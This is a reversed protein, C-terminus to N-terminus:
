LIQHHAPSLPSWQPNKNFRLTAPCFYGFTSLDDEFIGFLDEMSEFGQQMLFLRIPHEQSLLFVNDLFHACVDESTLVM